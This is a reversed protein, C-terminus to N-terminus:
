LGCCCLSYLKTGPTIPMIRNSIQAMILLMAMTRSFSLPVMSTSRPDGRGGAQMM